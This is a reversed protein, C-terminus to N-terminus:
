RIRDLFKAEDTTLDFGGINDAVERMISALRRLDKCASCKGNGGPEAKARPKHRILIKKLGDVNRCIGRVNASSVEFGLKEAVVCAVDASKQSELDNVRTRLYDIVQSKQTLTLVNKM